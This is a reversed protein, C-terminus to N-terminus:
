FYNELIPKSSKFVNLFLFALHTAPPPLLSSQSGLAIGRKSLITFHARNAQPMSGAGELQVKWKPGDVKETDKRIRLQGGSVPM